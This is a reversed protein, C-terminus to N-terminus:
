ALWAQKHADYSVIDAAPIVEPIMDDDKLFACTDDIGKLGADTIGVGLDSKELLARVGRESNGSTEAGIKVAEDPNGETRKRSIEMATVFRAAVSPYQLLFSNDALMGCCELLLGTGDRLVTFGGGDMLTTLMPELIFGGDLDGSKLSTIIDSAQMNMLEVDNETLDAEALVELMSNHLTTGSLRM